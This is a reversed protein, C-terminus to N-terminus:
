RREERRERDAMIEREFPLYKAMWRDFEVDAKPARERLENHKWASTKVIKIKDNNMIGVMIDCCLALSLCFILNCNPIFGIARCDCKCVSAVVARLMPLVLGCNFNMHNGIDCVTGLIFRPQQPSPYALKPRCALRPSTIFRGLSLVYSRLAPLLVRSDGM